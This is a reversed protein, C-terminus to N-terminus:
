APDAGDCHASPLCQPPQKVTNVFYNYSLATGAPCTCAYVGYNFGALSTAGDPCATCSGYGAMGAREAGSMACVCVGHWKNEKEKTEKKERRQNYRTRLLERSLQVIHGPLLM